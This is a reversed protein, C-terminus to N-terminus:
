ISDRNAGTRPPRYTWEMRKARPAKTTKRTAHPPLVMAEISLLPPELPDLPDVPELPAVPELPDVPELPLPV